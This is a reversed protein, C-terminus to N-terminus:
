WGWGHWRAPRRRRREHGGLLSGLVRGRTASRRWRDCAPRRTAVVSCRPGQRRNRRVAVPTRLPAGWCRARSQDDSKRATELAPARVAAGEMGSAAPVRAVAAVATAVARVEARRGKQGVAAAAVEGVGAVSGAAAAVATEAVVEAAATAVAVTAEWCAALTAEAAVATAAPEEAVAAVKAEVEWSGSRHGGRAERAAAVGKAGARGAVRDVVSLAVATAEGVMAAVMDASGGVATTAM